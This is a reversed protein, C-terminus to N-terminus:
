LNNNLSVPMTVEISAHLFIIFSYIRKGGLRSKIGRPGHVLNRDILVQKQPCTILAVQRLMLRSDHIIVKFNISLDPICVKVKGLSEIFTIHKHIPM